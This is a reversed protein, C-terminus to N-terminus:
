TLKTFQLGIQFVCELVKFCQKMAEM